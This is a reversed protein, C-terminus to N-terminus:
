PNLSTSRSSLTGPSYMQTTRQIAKTRCMRQGTQPETQAQMRPLSSAAAHASHAACAAIAHLAAAACARGGVVAAGRRGLSAGAVRMFVDWKVCSNVESHPIVGRKIWRVQAEVWKLTAAKDSRWGIARPGERTADFEIPLSDLLPLRCVEHLM